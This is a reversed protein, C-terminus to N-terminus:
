PKPLLIFDLSEKKKKKLNVSTEMSCKLLESTNLAGHGRHFSRLHHSVDDVM